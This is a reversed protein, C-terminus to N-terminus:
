RGRVHAMPNAIARKTMQAVVHVVVQRASILLQEHSIMGPEADFACRKCTGIHRGYFTSCADHGILYCQLCEVDTYSVCRNM